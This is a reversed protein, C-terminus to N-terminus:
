IRNIEKVQLLTLRRNNSVPAIASGNVGKLHVTVTNDTIPNDYYNGEIKSIYIPDLYTGSNYLDYDALYMEGNLYIDVIGSASRKALYLICASGKYKFSMYDGITDTYFCRRHGYVWNILSTWTGTKKVLDLDITNNKYTHWLIGYIKVTGNTCVIQIGTNEILSLNTNTYESVTVEVLKPRNVSAVGQSYSKIITTENHRKIDFDGVMSGDIIVDFASAFGHCFKVKQGVSLSIVSLASTKGSYAIAPNILDPSSSAIISGDNFFPHCDIESSNPFNKNLNPDDQDKLIRTTNISPSKFKLDKNNIITRICSAYAEKGAENPHVTDFLPNVGTQQLEKMYCWTDAIACGYADAIKKIIKADDFHEEGTTSRFNQTTLIVEIGNDRINKVMSELYAMKHSGGNVAFGIIVLDYAETFLPSNKLTKYLDYRTSERQAENDYTLATDDFTGEGSKVGKGTWLTGFHSTQGGVSFNYSEVNGESANPVNYGEASTLPDFLLDEFSIGDGATGEIISNGILAVKSKKQGNILTERFKPIKDLPAVPIIHKIISISGSYTVVEGVWIIGDQDQRRLFHIKFSLLDYGIFLSENPPLTIEKKPISFVTDGIKIEFPKANLILGNKSYIINSNDAWSGNKRVYSKGDNPAEPIGTQPVTEAGSGTFMKVNDIYYGESIWYPRIRIADFNVAPFNLQAKTLTVTQYSLNEADMAAGNTSFYNFSRKNGGEWIEIYFFKGAVAEKLKIDFQLLDMESTNLLVPSEFHAYDSTTVDTGEICNVGESPDSTNEALNASLVKSWTTSDGYVQTNSTNAPTTAAALVSVQKIVYYISPDYDPPVVLTTSAPTGTIKGVTGVTLPEIPKIAVILDIRDLLPDSADLTVEDPIAQYSVGNIPFIDATVDFSLGTGTWIASVDVTSTEKTILNNFRNWNLGDYFIFDGMEFIIDGSGLNSTGTTSVRYTDGAIGIGDALTPTNTAANWEGLYGRLKEIKIKKAIDTGDNIAMAIEPDVIQNLETLEDIMKGNALAAILLNIQQEQFNGM